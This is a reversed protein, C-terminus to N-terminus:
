SYHLNCLSRYMRCLPTRYEFDATTYFFVNDVGDEEIVDNMLYEMVLRKACKAAMAFVTWNGFGSLSRLIKYREEKSEVRDLLSQTFSMDEDFQFLLLRRAPPLRGFLNANRSGYLTCKSM